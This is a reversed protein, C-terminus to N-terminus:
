DKFQIRMDLANVAQDAVAEPDEASAAIAAAYATTWMTIRYRPCSAETIEFKGEDLDIAM